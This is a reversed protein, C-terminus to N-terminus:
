NLPKGRRDDNRPPPTNNNRPPRPEKEKVVVKNDPKPPRRNEGRKQGLAGVSLLCCMTVAMAVAMLKRKLNVM